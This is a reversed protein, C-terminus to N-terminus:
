SDEGGSKFLDTVVDVARRVRKESSQNNTPQSLDLDAGDAPTNGLTNDSDSWDVYAVSNADLTFFKIQIGKALVYARFIMLAPAVHNLWDEEGKQQEYRLVSGGRRKWGFREFMSRIYSHDNASANILDYSVTIPM